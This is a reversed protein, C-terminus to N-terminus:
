VRLRRMEEVKGKDHQEDIWEELHAMAEQETKFPGQEEEDLHVTGHGLRNYNYVTYFWEERRQEASYGFRRWQM